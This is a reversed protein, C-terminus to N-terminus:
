LMGVRSCYEGFGQPSGGSTDVLRVGFRFDRARASWVNQLNVGRSEPASGGAHVAAKPLHQVKLTCAPSCLATGCFPTFSMHVSMHTRAHARTNHCTCLGACTYSCARLCTYLCLQPCACLCLHLCACGRTYVSGRRWTEGGLADSRVARAVVHRHLHRCVHRCVHGIAGSAMTGRAQTGRGGRHVVAPWNRARM